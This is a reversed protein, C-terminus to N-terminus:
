VWLNRLYKGFLRLANEMRAEYRKRGEWDYVGKKKWRLPTCKKGKNSRLELGQTCPDEDEPYKTFDIEGKEITFQSEWDTNLTHFVWIMEKVIWEWRIFEDEDRLEPPVDELDTEPAGNNVEQYKLLLAEIAPSITLPINWVDSLNVKVKVKGDKNVKYKM